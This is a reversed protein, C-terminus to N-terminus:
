NERKTCRICGTMVGDVKGAYANLASRIGAHLFSQMESQMDHLESLSPTMQDNHYQQIDNMLENSANTNNEIANNCETVKNNYYTEM